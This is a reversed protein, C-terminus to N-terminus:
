APAPVDHAATLADLRELRSAVRLREFVGRAETVLPSIEGAHGHAALHEAQELLACAVVFPEDIGRLATVASAFPADDDGRLALLRARQLELKAAIQPPAPDIPAATARAILESLAAESSLTVASEGGLELLGEVAVADGWHGELCLAVADGHRSEAQAILVRAWIGIGRSQIDAADAAWEAYEAALEVAREPEGRHLAIQALSLNSSAHVPNTAFRGEEPIEQFVREFDDWQGMAYYGSLLNASLSQEWTRDGRRRALALGHEVVEQSESTRGAIALLYSLNM